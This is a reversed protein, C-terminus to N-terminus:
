FELEMMKVLMKWAEAVIGNFGTVKNNNMSTIFEKVKQETFDVDLEEVYCPGIDSGGRIVIGSHV